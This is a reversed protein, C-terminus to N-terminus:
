KIIAKKMKEDALASLQQPDTRTLFYKNVGHDKLLKIFEKEDQTYDDQVIKIGGSLIMAHYYDGMKPANYLIISICVFSLVRSITKFSLNLASLGYLVIGFSLYASPLLYFSSNSHESNQYIADHAAVILFVIFYSFLFGSICIFSEVYKRKKILSFQMLIFFMAIANFSVFLYSLAASWVDYAWYITKIITIPSMFKKFFQENHYNQPNNLTGYFILKGIVLYFLIYLCCCVSFIILIRGIRKKFLFRIIFSLFTMFFLTFVIQEDVLLSLFIIFIMAANKIALVQKQINGPDAPKKLEHIFM